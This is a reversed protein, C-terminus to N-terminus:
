RKTQQYDRTVMKMSITDCFICIKALNNQYYIEEAKLLNLDEFNTIIVICVTIKFYKLFLCERIKGVLREIYEDAGLVFIIKRNKHPISSPHNLLARGNWGMRFFQWIPVKNGTSSIQFKKPGFQAKIWYTDWPGNMHIDMHM